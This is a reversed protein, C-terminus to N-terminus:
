KVLNYICLQCITKFKDIKLCFLVQRDFLKDNPTSQVDSWQGQICHIENHYM